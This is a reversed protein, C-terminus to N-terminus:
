LFRFLYSFFDSTYDRYYPGPTEVPHGNIMREIPPFKLRAVIHILNWLGAHEMEGISRELVSCKYFVSISHLSKQNKSQHLIYRYLEPTSLGPNLTLNLCLSFTHM